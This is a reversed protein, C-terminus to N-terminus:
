CGIAHDNFQGWSTGDCYCLSKNTADYYMAGRASADCIGPNDIPNTKLMNLIELDKGQIIGDSKIGRSGVNIGNEAYLSNGVQTNETSKVTSASISGVSASPADIGSVDIVTLSDSYYSTVYAYKGSVYVSYARELATAGEGNVIVGVQTPNSPDSVDIVTLSNSARSAVYAYKGSVYVSLAGDLATAGEGNVIVGVQTPNSPDSIDIVTLSSSYISAVYAYKGSVYLLAAGDLATAGEGNVIVGVQTPNSPDSIDVITLSDSFFSSVYAYKGSVYVGAAGDLATAGEGDVIVGVKIPNSPDSIDIVTLTGSFSVVYAYKGSVYLSNVWEMADDVIVGVQTPNSPDSIDIVTLSRSYYSVVYAYKGSVYVSAAWALAPPSGEGKVIVGVQTPNSPDSIDVITLSDSYVSAIYAYKGSVYVWRPSDLATAGEGNVIVGTEKLTPATLLFNGGNLTLKETPASTGIGVKGTSTALYVNDDAQFLGGIGLAGAKYQPTTSANILFATNNSPPPATPSTWARVFHIAGGIVTVAVIAGLGFLLRHIFKRKLIKIM